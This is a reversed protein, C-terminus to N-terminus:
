EPILLLIHIIKNLYSLLTSSAAAQIKSCFFGIKYEHKPINKYDSGQKLHSSLM